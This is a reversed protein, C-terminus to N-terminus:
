PDAAIVRRKLWGGREVLDLRDGAGRQGRKGLGERGLEAVDHELDLFEGVVRSSASSPMSIREVEGAEIFANRQVLPADLM